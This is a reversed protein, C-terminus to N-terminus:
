IKNARKRNLRKQRQNLMKHPIPIGIPKLMNDAMFGLGYERLIKIIGKSM